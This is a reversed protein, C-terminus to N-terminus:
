GGAGSMSRPPIGVTTLRVRPDHLRSPDLAAAATTRRDLYTLFLATGLRQLIGCAHAAVCKDSFATHGAGAIVALGHPTTRPLSQEFRQVLPFPVLHDNAGALVLTAARITQATAADAGGAMVMAAKVRPDQAALQAVTHAGFSHGVAGIRATDVHAPLGPAFRRAIAPLHALLFRLDDVREVEEDGGPVHDVHHPGLVVFGESALHAALRTYNTPKGNVGHSLLILPFRCPSGAAAAAAPFWATPDIHRVGSTTTLARQVRASATRVPFPGPAALDRPVPPACSRPAPATPSRAAPAKTGGGCAATLLTVAIAAAVARPHLAPVM